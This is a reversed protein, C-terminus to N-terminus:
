GILKYRSKNRSSSVTFDPCFLLDSLAFLLTKALPLGAPGINSAENLDPSSWFFNNWDPDEFIYPIIRTLFRSCNIVTQQDSSSRCSSEVADTIREVLQLIVPQTKLKFSVPKVKFCLKSLNEPASDKLKRIDKPSLLSFVEQVSSLQEQGLQDWVAADAAPSSESLQEWWLQFRQKSDSSSM